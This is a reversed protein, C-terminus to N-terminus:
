EASDRFEVENLLGNLEKAFGHIYDNDRITIMRIQGSERM